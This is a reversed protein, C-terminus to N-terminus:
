QTLGLNMEFPLTVESASEDIQLESAMDAIVAAQTEADASFFVGALSTGAFHRPIFESPPPLKLIKPVSRVEVSNCGTHTLLTRLEDLEGLAFPTQFHRGVEAGVRRRAARAVALCYPNKAIESWVAVAVKGAPSVVRGFEKVVAQRATFFQLGQQCLVVDFSSDAFPLSAADGVQWQITPVNKGSTKQAVALMEPSIDLGVVTGLPGVTIAAARAVAGTGCAVDLVRSGPRLSAWGILDPIWPGLLYPVICSEYKAAAEHDRTFRHPTETLSAEASHAQRRVSLSHAGSVVTLEM